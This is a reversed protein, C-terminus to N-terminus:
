PKWRSYTEHTMIKGVTMVGTTFSVVAVLRFKNGAINFVVYPKVYDASPFTRKVDVISKWNALKVTETWRKLPERSNQHQKMFDQILPENQLEM